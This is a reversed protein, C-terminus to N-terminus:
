SPGRLMKARTLNRRDDGPRQIPTELIAALARLDRRRLLGRFGRDGITGRGIHEHLDRRAGAPGRCDNLHVLRLRELGLAAAFGKMTHAVWRPSDLRYGAAHAHCTDFCLGVRHEGGLLDLLHVFEEWSGGLESGRGATNELLLAVGRPAGSLLSRVGAALARLGAAAGAGMHHGPHVVVFSAGLKAARVLDDAVSQLSRERLAREPSALNLLYSAHIALPKIGYADLLQRFGDAEPDALFRARWGRPNRAFIQLCECGLTRARRAARLLGGGVMVHVGLRV